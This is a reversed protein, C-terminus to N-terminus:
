QIGISTLNSALWADGSRTMTLELRQTNAPSRQKKDNVSYGNVTVLALIDGADNTGEYASHEVNGTLDFKGKRLRAITAAKEGLLDKRLRGTAGALARAFDAAFHARSYTVLNAAETAASTVAQQQDRTPGAAALGTATPASGSAQGRHDRVSAVHVLLVALVAVVVVLVGAVIWPADSRARKPETM